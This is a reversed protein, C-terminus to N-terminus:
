WICMRDTCFYQTEGGGALGELEGEPIEADLRARLDDATLEFGSANAIAAITAADSSAARLRDRLVGDQKVAELFLALNEQAMAQDCRPIM